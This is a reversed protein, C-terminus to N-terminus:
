SYPANSVMVGLVLLRAERKSEAKTGPGLKRVDDCVGDLTHKPDAPLTGGAEKRARFVSAFPDEWLRADLDQLAPEQYRIGANVQPCPVGLPVRTLLAAGIAAVIVAVVSAVPLNSGGGESAM